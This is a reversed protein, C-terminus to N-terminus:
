FRHNKDDTEVYSEEKEKDDLAENSIETYKRKKLVTTKENEPSPQTSNDVKEDVKALEVTTIGDKGEIDVKETIKQYPNAIKSDDNLNM